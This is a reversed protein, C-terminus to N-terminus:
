ITGTEARLVVGAMEPSTEPFSYTGATYITGLSRGFRYDNAIVSHRLICSLRITQEIILHGGHGEPFSRYNLRQNPNNQNHVLQRVLRLSLEINRNLPNRIIDTEASTNASANTSDQSMLTITITIVVLIVLLFCFV